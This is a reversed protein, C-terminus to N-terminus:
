RGHKSEAGELVAVVPVDVTSGQGAPLTVSAITRYEKPEDGGNSIITGEPIIVASATQNTLMVVGNAADATQAVPTIGNWDTLSIFLAFGIPIILFVLFVIMAPALFLYGTLAESQDKNLGARPPPQASPSSSSSSLAM